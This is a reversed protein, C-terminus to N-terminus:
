INQAFSCVAEIYAARPGMGSFDHDGGPVRVFQAAKGYVAMYKECAADDVLKDETGRLLLVPGGYGAAQAYPDPYAGLDYNFAHALKLGGVDGFPAGSAELQRSREACGYWMAAGPCMLVLGAPQARPAASAAVFGGMSQGSLIVRAPDAWPQRKTWACIDQADELLGTYTMDEFSGDSEANGYFDFRVCAVGAAALARAMAAHMSRAGTRNSGFGHLNVLAAFPGGGDALTVIGRLTHGGRNSFETQITKM